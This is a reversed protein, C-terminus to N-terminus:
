RALAAVGVDPFDGFIGDVGLSAFARWEAAANGAYAKPLFAEDSRLTWVHVALGARHADAVLSTPTGRKGDADILLVLSKEV